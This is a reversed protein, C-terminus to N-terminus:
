DFAQVEMEANEAKGSHILKEYPCGEPPSEVGERHFIEGCTRGILGNLSKEIFM